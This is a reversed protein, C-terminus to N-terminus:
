LLRRWRLFLFAGIVSIAMLGLVVALGERSHLEPIDTFNMGYFSAIFTPPVFLATVASLISFSRNQALDILGLTADTLANARGSLYECHFALAKVDRMLAALPGAPIDIHEGDDGQVFALGREVTLLGHQMASLRQGMQGSRQLNDKLAVASLAQEAFVEDALLDFEAGADELRDAIRGTIAELIQIMLAGPTATEDTLDDTTDPVTEFAELAHDHVTILRDDRILFAVPGFTRTGDADRGPLYVTIAVGNGGRRFRRSPQIEAMQDPEPVELGLANVAERQTPTPSYLDIWLATDLADAAVRALQGDEASYAHIM